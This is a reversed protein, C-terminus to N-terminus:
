RRRIKDRNIKIFRRGTQDGSALPSVGESLGQGSSAPSSFQFVPVAPSELGSSSPTNFLRPASVSAQTNNNEKNVKENALTSPASAISFPGSTKSGFLASNSANQASSFSFAPRTLGFAPASSGGFTVQSSTTSGFSFLPAPMSSAQTSNSMSSGSQFSSFQFPSPTLSAGKAASPLFSPVVPSSGSAFTGFAQNASSNDSGLAATSTPLKPFMLSTESSSKGVNKIREQSGLVTSQSSPLTTLAAVASSFSLKDEGTGFKFQPITTSIDSTSSSSFSFVLNKGVCNSGFSFSPITLPTMTPTPPPECFAPASSIPFTFGSGDVAPTSFREGTKSATMQNVTNSKGLFPLHTQAETKTDTLELKSTQGDKHNDQKVSVEHTFSQFCHKDLNLPKRTGIESNGHSITIGGSVSASVPISANRSGVDENAKAIEPLAQLHNSPKWTTEPIAVQGILPRPSETHVYKGKLDSALDEKNKTIMTSTAADGIGSGSIEVSKGKPSPFMRGLHKSIKESIDFESPLSHSTVGPKEAKGDVVPFNLLSSEHGGNEMKEKEKYAPRSRRGNYSGSFLPSSGAPLLSSSEELPNMVISKQRVRRIPGVSEYANDALLIRRKLAQSGGTLPTGSPEWQVFRTSAGEGTVKEDASLQFSKAYHTRAMKHLGISSRQTQPTFYSRDDQRIAGPWCTPSKPALSFRSIKPTVTKPALATKEVHFVRSQSVPGYVSTRSMYAKAIEAPSAYSDDLVLSPVLPTSGSGVVGADTTTKPMELPIMLHSNAQPPEIERRITTNESKHIDVAPLDRNGLSLEARRIMTANESKHMDGEPPDITRTRLFDSFRNFEDRSITKQKLLHEFEALWNGDSGEGHGHSTSAADKKIEENIDEQEAPRCQVDDCIEASDDLRGERTVECQPQPLAHARKSFVSSLLRNAGGVLLRSAPDAVLKSFWSGGTPPHPSNEAASSSAPPRHKPPPRDYPTAPRRSPRKSRLKGGAGGGEGAPADGAIHEEEVM